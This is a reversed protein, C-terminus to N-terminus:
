MFSIKPYHKRLIRIHESTVYTCGFLGVRRLNPFHALMHAIDYGLISENLIYLERLNARSEYSLKGFDIQRLDNPKLSISNLEIEQLKPCFDLFAYIDTPRLSINSLKLCRLSYHKEDASFRTSLDNHFNKLIIKGKSNDLDITELYPAADLLCAIDNSSFATDRIILHRLSLLSDRPITNFHNLPIQNNQSLILTRKKILPKFKPLLPPQTAKAENFNIPLNQTTLKFFYDWWDRADGISRRQFLPTFPATSFSSFRNSLKLASPIFIGPSLFNPQLLFRKFIIPGM